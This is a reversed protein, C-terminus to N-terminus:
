EGLIQMLAIYLPLSRDRADRWQRLTSNWIISVAQNPETYLTIEHQTVHPTGKLSVGYSVNVGQPTRVPLGLMDGLLLATHSSIQM